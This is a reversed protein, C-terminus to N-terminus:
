HLKGLMSGDDVERDSDGHNRTTYEPLIFFLLTVEKEQSLEELIQLCCNCEWM